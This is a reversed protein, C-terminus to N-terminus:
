DESKSEASFRPVGGVCVAHVESEREEEGRGEFKIEVEEPGRSGVDVAFGGEPQAAVLRITPASCEAVVSGGAGSWTRRVAPSGDPAGSSSGDSSPSGSPSPVNSSGTGSPRTPEGTPTASLTERPALPPVSGGDPFSSDPADASLGTQPAVEDGARSIVVWVLTSGLAVVLTWALAGLLWGRLGNM